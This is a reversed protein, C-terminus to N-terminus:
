GVDVLVVVRATLHELNDDVVAMSNADRTRGADDELRVAPGDATGVRWTTGAHSVTQGVLYRPNTALFDRLAVEGHGGGFAQGTESMRFLAISTGRSSPCDVHWATDAPPGQVQEGTNIEIAGSPLWFVRQWAHEVVAYGRAWLPDIPTGEPAPVSMM